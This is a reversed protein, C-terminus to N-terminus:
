KAQALLMDAEIREALARQVYAHGPRSAVRAVVERRCAKRAAGTGAKRCLRAAVAEIRILAEARGSTQRLDLDKLHVNFADPGVQWAHGAASAPATSAVAAAASAILLFKRM